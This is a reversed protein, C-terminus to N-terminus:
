CTSTFGENSPDTGVREHLTRNRVSSRQCSGPRCNSPLIDLTRSGSAALIHSPASGAAIMWGRRHKCGESKSQQNNVSGQRDVDRFCVLAAPGSAALIHCRMCPKGAAEASVLDHTCLEEESLRRTSVYKGNFIKLIRLPM